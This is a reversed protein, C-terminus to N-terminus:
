GAECTLLLVGRVISCDSQKLHKEKRLYESLDVEAEVEVGGTKSWGVSGGEGEMGGDRINCFVFFAVGTLPPLLESRRSESGRASDVGFLVFSPRWGALRLALVM